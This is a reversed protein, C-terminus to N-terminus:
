EISQIEGDMAKIWEIGKAAEQYSLPVEDDDTLLLNVHDDEGQKEEGYRLRSDLVYDAYRNPLVSGRSSRRLGIQESTDETEENGTSTSEGQVRPQDTSVPDAQIPIEDNM